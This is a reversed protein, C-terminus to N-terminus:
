ITPQHTGSTYFSTYTEEVTQVTRPVARRRRLAESDQSGFGVGMSHGTLPPLPNFSLRSPSVRLSCLVKENM